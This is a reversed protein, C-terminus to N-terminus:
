EVVVIRTQEHNGVQLRLMYTGAPIDGLNLEASQEGIDYHRATLPAAILRGDTSYIGVTVTAPEVLTFVLHLTHSSVPNPMLRHWTMHSSSSSRSGGVSLSTSPSLKVVFADGGNGISTQYANTIPFNTSSTIGAVYIDGTGDVAISLGEDRLSGGLYTSYILSEGDNGIKTIFVDGVGALSSQYPTAVPFNLSGTMGTVYINDEDDITLANGWEVGDGDLCSTFMHTGDAAFKSVFAGLHNGSRRKLNTTAPFNSSSTTGTVFASGQGNVVIGYGGYEVGTGGLYTSYVLASGNSNLKSVFNSGNTGPSLAIYANVAPYNSSLTYGTIYINEDGDLAISNAQESKSGGLFTSYVISKGNVALRTIFIDEEGQLSSQYANAVPFDSSKTRGTVYAYGSGDIAIANAVDLSDGGLYTSYFLTDGGKSLKMVIADVNGQMTDQYANSIPFNKSVTFGAVYIDGNSGAAMGHVEDQNNGGFYTSYVLTSFNSDLKTVYADMYGANSTQVTTSTPFNTSITSGTIYVRGVADVVMSTARDTSNGGIYTSHILPDIVLPLSADYTQVNFGIISNGKDAFACEVQRKRGDVMQYAFLERQRIDGLSTRIVLTADADVTVKDAGEFKMRVQAPDAGPAVVLDYRPSGGDLYFLADVGNYIHELRAEAYLPVNAAWRSRDNGIFYNNYMALRDKGHAAADSSAGEFNMSVAKRTIRINSSETHGGGPGMASSLVSASQKGDGKQIYEIRNLDYVVGSGTIWLDLGPSRLLFKARIDWQGRNEIFGSRRSDPAQQATATSFALLLLAIPLTTCTRNM